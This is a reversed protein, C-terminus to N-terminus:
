AQGWKVSLNFLAMFLNPSRGMTGLGRDGSGSEEDIGLAAQHQPVLSSVPWWCVPNWPQQNLKSVFGSRSHSPRPGKGRPNTLQSWTPGESGRTMDVVIHLYLCSSYLSSSDGTRTGLPWSSGQSMYGKRHGRPLIRCRGEWGDEM